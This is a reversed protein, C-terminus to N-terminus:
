NSVVLDALAKSKEAEYFEDEQASWMGWFEDFSGQDRESFRRKREPAECELWIRLDALQATQKSLSGCGEVMLVTGGSFERWGNGPENKNGRSSSQWDWIQWAASVGSRLPELIKRHLYTSGERLGEWGPYLDDMHIIRPAAEGAKFLLDSLQEAFSSKGSAARGDILVIPTSKLEWLELLKKSAADLGEEFNM